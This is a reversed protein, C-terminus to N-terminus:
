YYTQTAEDEEDDFEDEESTLRTFAVVLGVIVLLVVLVILGLELARRFGGVPEEVDDPVVSAQLAVQKTEKGDTISLLAVKDSEADEHPEVRVYVTKAEGEELVVVNSPDFRFDAWDKGTDINLVYTMSSRGLNSITVPYSASGGAKIEQADRPASVATHAKEKPEEPADIVEIEFNRTQTYYYNYRLSVEADYTGASADSPIRLYLEPSTKSEGRDIENLFDATSIDLGPVELSVRVDDQIRDGMNRIRAVGYLAEGPRVMDGPHFVFDSIVLENEDLGVAIDYEKVFTERDRDTVMVRIKYEGEEMNYPLKINLDRTLARGSELRHVRVSDSITDFEYGSIFVSIMADEIRDPTSIRVRVNLDDERRLEERLVSQSSPDLRVGEVEVFELDIPLPAAVVSASSLLLFAAVFVMLFGIKKM